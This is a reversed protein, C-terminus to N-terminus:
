SRSQKKFYATPSLAWPITKLEVGKGKIFEDVANSEGWNHVAYEDLLVVGGGVIRDYFNEIAGKTPEYVDFDLNLLGIRFGPNSKVYEPISKLADGVVIEIRQDIKLQKAKNKILEPVDSYNKFVESSSRDQQGKVSQPVGEFTDFGIVKRTSLPNFIQILRAWFLVGHGNFVGCEVIDGPLESIMKFLDYRALIKTFRDLEGDELFQNYSDFSSQTM